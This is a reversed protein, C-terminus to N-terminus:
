PQPQGWSKVRAPRSRRCAFRSGAPSYPQARSIVRRRAGKEPKRYFHTDWPIGSVGEVESWLQAADQLAERRAAEESSAPRMQAIVHDFQQTSRPKIEDLPRLPHLVGVLAEEVYAYGSQERPGGETPKDKAGQTGPGGSVSASLVSSRARVLRTGVAIM